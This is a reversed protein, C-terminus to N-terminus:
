GDIERLRRSLSRLVVLSVEPRERLIAKFTPGDIALVRVEERTVLSALRPASDIIAMEGVFDGPGRQALVQDTGKAHRVVDLHGEVIVYMRDGQEDQRFITTDKPFWQESAIAAVQQLDEPSLGSFIPIERLLLVRELAPVTQLTNM